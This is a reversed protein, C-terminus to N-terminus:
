HSKERLTRSLAFAGVYMRFASSVKTTSRGGFRTNSVIPVSLTPYNFRRCIANFEADLLDDRRELALLRECSRPFVKPTGNVDFTALDFLARCELNYILSGLRRVLSERLKRSATIVVDPNTMAHLLVLALSDPSTRASNTFCLLDGRAVSLGHAVACGWGPESQTVRVTEFEEALAHCAELTGDNPGNVVLVFEHPTPLQGILSEYSRVVEDIFAAQRYVPLVISVLSYSM